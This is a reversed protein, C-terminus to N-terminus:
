GSPEIEDSEPLYALEKMFRRLKRKISAELFDAVRRNQGAILKERLENDDLIIDAVEALAEYNKDHFLVGADDMTSPIATAAYAMVPVEFYMSEILPKGFGEHESMSVFLDAMRYYTVMDQQSVRDTFTVADKLGLNSCLHTLWTYYDRHQIRGVLILHANPDVRRLYYLLKILDEQRKNPALRGVFLLLPRKDRYLDLLAESSPVDYYSEDLAVPLVGTKVFGLEKLEQVSYESAGLGLAALTRITELQSRGRILEKALAPDVSAYFEPPTINHYFLILPVSSEALANVVDSGVGHHYLLFRENRGPRYNNLLKIQSALSEACHLSYIDSKYGIDRLWRQLILAQDTIADGPVASDIVQHLTLRSRSM